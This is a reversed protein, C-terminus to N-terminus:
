RMGAPQQRQDRLTCAIRSVGMRDEELAGGEPSSDRLSQPPRGLHRLIQLHGEENACAAEEAGAPCRGWLPLDQSHAVM